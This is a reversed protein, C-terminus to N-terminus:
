GVFVSHNMFTADTATPYKNTPSRTAPVMRCYSLFSPLTTSSTDFLPDGQASGPKTFVLYTHPGVGEDLELASPVDDGLEM